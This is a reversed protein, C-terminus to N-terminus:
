IITPKKKKLNNINLMMKVLIKKRYEIKRANQKCHKVCSFCRICKENNIIMNEDIAGMPCKQVCIGCGNCNSNISPVKTFIKASNKPLLRAMILLSGPVDIKKIKNDNKMREVFQLAFNKAEQLDDSTPHGKALPSRDTSFSHEGIFAGLSYISLGLEEFESFIQKLSVGYGINGYVSFAIAPQKNFKMKKVSDIIFEPIYEEYVPSGFIVIDSSILTSKTRTRQDTLDIYTIEGVDLASIIENAIKKTTGTPSFFIVTATQINM